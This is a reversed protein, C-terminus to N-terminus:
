DRPRDGNGRGRWAPAGGTSPQQSQRQAQWEERRAQRQEDTMGQWEQRRAQWTERRQQRQEDTLNQNRARWAERRQQWNAGGGNDGASRGDRYSSWNERGPRNGRRSEWYHRQSDNWTHRAGGRDYIYYGTGPYYYDDYWGWYPDGYYGSGYGVSVGGYGYGDDTTCGSLAAASLALLAPGIFHKM